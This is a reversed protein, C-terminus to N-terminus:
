KRRPWRKLGIAKFSRHYKRADERATNLAIAIAQKRPLHAQGTELKINKGIAAKIGRTTRGHHLPM